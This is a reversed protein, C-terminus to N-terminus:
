FVLSAIVGLSIAFSVIYRILTRKTKPDKWNMALYLGSIFIVSELVRSPRWMDALGVIGFSPSCYAPDIGM